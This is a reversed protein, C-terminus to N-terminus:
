VEDKGKHPHYASPPCVNARWQVLRLLAGGSMHGRARATHGICFSFKSLLAMSRPGRGDEPTSRDPRCSSAIADFCEESISSVDANQIHHAGKVYACAACVRAVGPDSVDSGEGHKITPKYVEKPPRQLFREDDHSEAPARDDRGEEDFDDAVEADDHYPAYHLPDGDYPETAAASACLIILVM